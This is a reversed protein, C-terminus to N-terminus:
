ELDPLYDSEVQLMKEMMKEAQSVDDVIPDIVLAQLLLNKSKEQYAKILLNQISIQLNCTGAIAEPLPGVDVPEIGNSDIQLPVEVIADGPLNSVSNGENPVNGSIEKRGRDLEIDCIIPIALEITPKVLDERSIPISADHASSAKRLEEKRNLSSLPNDEEVVEQIEKAQEESWLQYNIQNPQGERFYISESAEAGLKKSVKGLGWDILKPGTIEHAFSLYEGPHSPAPYTFLGFLDYLKRTLPNLNHNSNKMEERFEPMLNKGTNSDKIHLVWHFHNIGGVEVDLEEAQRDLIEAVKDRTVMPGHCLGVSRIDTLRNVGLCIRSEPNSFNILLADPCYREIDEVIPMMTHLTRLTHFAAGPGGNEGIVQPFGYAAPIYFDKEWFDWRNKAVSSIVYDTGTLAEERTDTAKFSINDASYYDKVLCAFKTMRELAELDLDVLYVTVDFHTLGKEIVLDVITGRGFTASGAGFVAIQLKKKSTNM